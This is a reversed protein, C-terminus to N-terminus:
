VMPTPKGSVATGWFVVGIASQWELNQLGLLGEIRATVGAEERTERVAAEDPFEGSEVLGWPVSWQGALSTGPAQRVLLIRGDNVVVVGVCVVNRSPWGSM